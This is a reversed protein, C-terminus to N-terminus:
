AYLRLAAGDFREAAAMAIANYLLEDLDLAPALTITGDQAVSERSGLRRMRRQHDRLEVPQRAVDGEDGVEHLAADLESGAVHGLGVTKEQVDHGGDGLLLGSRDAFARAVGQRSSLCAAHAQARAIRGAALQRRGVRHATCGRRNRATAPQAILRVGGDGFLDGPEPLFAEAQALNGDYQVVVPM